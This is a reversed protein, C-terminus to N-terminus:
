WDSPGSSNTDTCYSASDPTVTCAWDQLKELRDSTDLCTGYNAIVTSAADAAPIPTEDARRPSAADLLSPTGTAAADHLLGWGAPLLLAAAGAAPLLVPVERTIEKTITRIREAAEARATGIAQTVLTAKKLDTVQTVLATNDKELAKIRDAKEADATGWLYISGVIASAAVLLVIYPIFTMLKKILNPPM